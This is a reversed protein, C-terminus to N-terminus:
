CGKDFFRGKSAESLNTVLGALDELMLDLYNTDPVVLNELFRYKL